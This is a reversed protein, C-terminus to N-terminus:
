PTLVFIVHCTILLTTFHGSTVLWVLADFLVFLCTCVCVCVCMCVCVCVGIYVYVCMCVCMCVCVYVFIYMCVCVYVCVCVCVCLGTGDLAHAEQVGSKLGNLVVVFRVLDCIHLLSHHM